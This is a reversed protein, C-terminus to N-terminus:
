KQQVHTMPVNPSNTSTNNSSDNIVPNNITETSEPLTTNETEPQNIIKNLAVGGIILLIVIIFVIPKNM